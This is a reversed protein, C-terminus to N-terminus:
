FGCSREVADSVIFQALAIEYTTTGDEPMLQEM